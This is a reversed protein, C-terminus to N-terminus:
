LLLWSALEGGGRTFGLELMGVGTPGDTLLFGAKKLGELMEKDHELGHKNMMRLAQFVLKIPSADTQFDVVQVPLGEKFSSCIWSAIYEQSRICSPGRQIMTVSKAKKNVLDLCIDGASNCSGVVVVRKDKYVEGGSFRDTHQQMGNFEDQGAIKPIISSHLTGLAMVIHSANLIVREGGKNVVVTWKKTKADFSPPIEIGSHMWIPINQTLAYSELWDAVQWKTM